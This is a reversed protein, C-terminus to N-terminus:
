GRCSILFARGALEAGVTSADSETYVFVYQSICVVFYVTVQLTFKDKKFNTLNNVYFIHFWVCLSM